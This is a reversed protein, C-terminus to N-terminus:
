PRAQQSKDQDLKSQIAARILYDVKKADKTAGDEMSIEFKKTTQAKKLELIISRGDAASCIKLEGLKKLKFCRGHELAEPDADFLSFAIVVHRITALSQTQLAQLAFVKGLISNSAREIFTPASRFPATEQLLMESPQNPFLELDGLKPPVRYSICGLPDLSAGM